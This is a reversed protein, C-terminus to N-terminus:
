GQWYCLLTFIEWYQRRCKWIRKRTCFNSYYSEVQMLINIWVHEIASLGIHTLRSPLVSPHYSLALGNGWALMIHPSNQILNTHNENLSILKFIDGFPLSRLANVACVCLLPFKHIVNYSWPIKWYHFMLDVFCIISKIYMVNRQLCHVMSM